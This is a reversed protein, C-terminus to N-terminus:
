LTKNTMAKVENQLFEILESYLADHQKMRWRELLAMIVFPTALIVITPVISIANLLLLIIGIIAGYVMVFLDREGLLSRHNKLYLTIDNVEDATLGSSDLHTRIIHHSREFFKIDNNRMHDYTAKNGITRGIISSFTHWKNKIHASRKARFCEVLDDILRIKQEIDM